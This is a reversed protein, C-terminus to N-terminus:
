KESRQSTECDADNQWAQEVKCQKFSLEADLLTNQVPSQHHNRSDDRDKARNKREYRLARKPNALLSYPSPSTSSPCTTRKTIAHFTQIINISWSLMAHRKPADHLKVRPDSSVLSSRYWAEAPHLTAANKQHYSLHYFIWHGALSGPVAPVPSVM